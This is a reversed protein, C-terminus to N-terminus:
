IEIKDDIVSQVDFHKSVPMADIFHYNPLVITPVTTALKKCIVINLSSAHTAMDPKKGAHIATTQMEQFSYNGTAM